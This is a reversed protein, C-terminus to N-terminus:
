GALAFSSLINDLNSEFSTHDFWIYTRNKGISFNVTRIGQDVPLFFSFGRQAQYIL